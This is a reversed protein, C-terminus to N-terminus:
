SLHYEEPLDTYCLGAWTSIFLVLSCCAHFLQPKCILIGPFCLAGRCTLSLCLTVARRWFLNSVPIILIYCVIMCVRWAALLTSKYLPLKYQPYSTFVWLHSGSQCLCAPFEETAWEEDMWQDRTQSKRQWGSCAGPWCPTVKLSPETGHGVPSIGGGGPVSAWPQVVYSRGIVVLPLACTSSVPVAM